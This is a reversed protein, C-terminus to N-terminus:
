PSGVAARLQLLEAELQQIIQIQRQIDKYAQIEARLAAEKQKLRDLITQATTNTSLTENSVTALTTAQELANLRRQTSGMQHSLLGMKEFLLSIPNCYKCNCNHDGDCEDPRAEVVNPLSKVEELAPMDSYIEQVIAYLSQTPDTELFIQKLAYSADKEIMSELEKLRDEHTGKQYADTKFAHLVTWSPCGLIKSSVIEFRGDPRLYAETAGSSGPVRVPTRTKVIDKLQAQEERRINELVNAEAPLESLCTGLSRTQNCFSMLDLAYMQNHTIFPSIPRFSYDNQTLRFQKLHWLVELSHQKLHEKSITFTGDSELRINHPFTFHPFHVDWSEGNALRRLARSEAQRLAEPIEPKLELKAQQKLSAELTANCASSNSIDVLLCKLPDLSDKIGHLKRYVNVLHWLGIPYPRHEQGSVGKLDFTICGNANLLVIGSM